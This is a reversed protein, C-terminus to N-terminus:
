NIRELKLQDKTQELVRLFNQLLTSKDAGEVQTFSAFYRKAMETNEGFAATFSLLNQAIRIILEQNRPDNSNALAALVMQGNESTGGLALGLQLARDDILRHYVLTPENKEDFKKAFQFYQKWGDSSFHLPIQRQVTVSTGASADYLSLQKPVFPILSGARPLYTRFKEADGASSFNLTYLEPTQANFQISLPKIKLLKCFSALWQQTEEELSNVRETISQSITAARKQDVSSKLSKSYYFVTPLINYVTLILVGSILLRRWRNQKDM